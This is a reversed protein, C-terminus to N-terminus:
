ISHRRQRRVQGADALVNRVNGRKSSRTYLKGDSYAGAGGEGFCFNSEPNLIRRTFLDNLDDTRKSVDKGREIIVPRIGLELFRLAAFLGAPGAGVILAEKEKAVNKFEPVFLPAPSEDIYAELTLNVKIERSRADIDRHTIRFLLKDQPSLSLKECVSNRLLLEEFAIKPPLTLSFEKKMYPSYCM